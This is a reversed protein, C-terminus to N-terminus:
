LSVQQNDLKVYKGGNAVARELVDIFTEGDRAYGHKRMYEIYAGSLDKILYPVATDFMRRPEGGRGLKPKANKYEIYDQLAQRINNRTDEETVIYRPIQRAPEVFTENIFDTVAAQRERHTVYGEVWRILSKYTLVIDKDTGLRGKMGNSFIYPVEKDRIGVYKSDSVFDNYMNVACSAVEQRFAESGMNRHLGNLIYVRMIENNLMAVAEDQPMESVKKGAELLAKIFKKDM